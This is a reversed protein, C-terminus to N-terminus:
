LNIVLHSTKREDRTKLPNHLFLYARLVLSMWEDSIPPKRFRRHSPSPFARLINTCFNQLVIVSDPPSAASLLFSLAFFPTMLRMWASCTNDTNPNILVCLRNLTYLGVNM